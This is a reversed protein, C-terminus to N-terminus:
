VVSFFLVAQVTICCSLLVGSAQSSIGDFHLATSGLRRQSVITCRHGYPKLRVMVAAPLM